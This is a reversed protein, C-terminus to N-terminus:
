KNDTSPPYPMYQAPLAAMASDMLDLDIAQFDALVAQPYTRNKEALRDLMRLADEILQLSHTDLAGRRTSIVVSKCPTENPKLSGALPHSVLEAGLHVADRVALFVQRVSRSAWDAAQPYKALVAPNNTVIRFGKMQASLAGKMCLFLSVVFVKAM